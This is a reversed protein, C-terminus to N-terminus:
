SDKDQNRKIMLPIIFVVCASLFIISGTFFLTDGIKVSAAIFFGACVIFAIWGWLTFKTARNGDDNSM